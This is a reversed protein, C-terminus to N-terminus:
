ATVLSPRRNRVVVSGDGATVVGTVSSRFQGGACYAFAGSNMGVAKLLVKKFGITLALGDGEIGLVDDVIHYRAEAKLAATRGTFFEAGGFLTAGLKTESDGFSEGNDKLQLFYAGLGAGVFPHIAGGEWNYVIDFPVRMIRLSDEDDVDSEPEAWGFGIRM